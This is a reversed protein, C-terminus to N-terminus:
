PREQNQNGANFAGGGAQNRYAQGGGAVLLLEVIEPSAATNRTCTAVAYVQRDNDRGPNNFAPPM